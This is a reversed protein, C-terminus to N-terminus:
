KFSRALTELEQLLMALREESDLSMKDFSKLLADFKRRSNVSEHVTRSGASQGRLANEWREITKRTYAGYGARELAARVLDQLECKRRLGKGYFYSVIAAAFSEVNLREPADCWRAAGDESSITPHIRGEAAYTFVDYALDLMGVHEEGVFCDLHLRVAALANAIATQSAQRDGVKQARNFDSGYKKIEGQLNLFVIALNIAVSERDPNYSEPLCQEPTGEPDNRRKLM